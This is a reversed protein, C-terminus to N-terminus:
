IYKIKTKDLMVLSNKIKDLEPKEDLVVLRIDAIKDQYDLKISRLIAQATAEENHTVNLLIVSDLNIFTVGLKGSEALALQSVSGEQFAVFNADSPSKSHFSPIELSDAVETLGTFVVVRKDKLEKLLVKTFHKKAISSSSLRNRQLALHMYNDGQFKMKEIVYTYNDYKQKESLMRGKSNPTKLITDLKVKHVTIKYDAIVNNEIAESISYKAIEKVEPWVRKTYKSITGSLCLTRGSAKLLRRSYEIEKESTVEHFEDFIIVDAKINLYKDLSRFNVFFINPNSYKWLEFEDRWTAEITNNPYTIIIFPNTNGYQSKLWEITVKCKGFRPSLDLYGSKEEKFFDLMKLVVEAQLEDQKKM